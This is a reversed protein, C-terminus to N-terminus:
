LYIYDRNGMAFDCRSQLSKGVAGDVIRISYFNMGTFHCAVRIPDITCIIRM